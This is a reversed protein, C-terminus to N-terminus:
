CRTFDAWRPTFRAATSFEEAIAALLALAMTPRWLGQDTYELLRTILAAVAPIEACDVRRGHLAASCCAMATGSVVPRQNRGRWRAGGLHLPGSVFAGLAWVGGVGAVM